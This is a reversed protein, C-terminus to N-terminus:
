RAEPRARRRGPHAAPAAPEPRVAHRGAAGATVAQSLAAQAMRLDRAADTVSGTPSPSSTSSSASGEVM